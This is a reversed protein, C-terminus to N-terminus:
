AVKRPRFFRSLWGSEEGRGQRGDTLALTQAQRRWEDRDSRMEELMVRLQELERKLFDREIVAKLTEEDTRTQEAPTATSREASVAPFVRHLEAPDIMFRGREDKTSSILGDNCAKFITSKAKGSAKAAQALTYKM